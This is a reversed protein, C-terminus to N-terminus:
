SQLATIIENIKAKCANALAQTTAPDTADATAIATLGSVAANPGALKIIEKGLESPMGLESLRDIAIDAM